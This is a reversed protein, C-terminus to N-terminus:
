KTLDKSIWMYITFYVRIFLGMNETWQFIWRIFKLVCNIELKHYFNVLPPCYFLVKKHNDVLEHCKICYYSLFRSFPTLVSCCLFMRWTTVRRQSQHVPSPTIPASAGAPPPFLPGSSGLQKRYSGTMQLCGCLSSNDRWSCADHNDIGM